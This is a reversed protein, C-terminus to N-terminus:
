MLLYIRWISLFYLMFLSNSSAKRLTAKSSLPVNLGSNGKWTDFMEIICLTYKVLFKQSSSSIGVCLMLFGLAETIFNQISKMICVDHVLARGAPNQMSKPKGSQLKQGQKRITYIIGLVTEIIPYFKFLECSRRTGIRKIHSEMKPLDNPWPPKWTDFWSQSIQVGGNFYFPPLFGGCMKQLPCVGM